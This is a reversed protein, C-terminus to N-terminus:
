LPPSPPLAAASVYASLPVCGRPFAGSVLSAPLRCFPPQYRLASSATDGSHWAMHVGARSVAEGARVSRFHESDGMVTGWLGSSM